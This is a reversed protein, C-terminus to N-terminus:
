IATDPLNELQQELDGVNAEDDDGLYQTEQERELEEAHQMEKVQRVISEIEDKRLLEEEAVEKPSDEKKGEGLKNNKFEVETTAAYSSNDGAEEKERKREPENKELEIEAVTTADSSTDGAGEVLREKVRAGASTVFIMLLWFPLLITSKRIM